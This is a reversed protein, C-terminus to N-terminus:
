ATAAHDNSYLKSSDFAQDLQMCAWVGTLMKRMVACLAQMKKKGRAVLADFFAKTHPDFRKASMAPMYLAARLYANGAKSLRGPKNISSGSQHLRVDLGAHRSVQSAKLHTPLVCLEALLSIASTTAIGKAATLHRMQRALTPAAQILEVAAATLKEIRRDLTRIGGQEDRILVKPTTRTSQLAHLRNRAQTRAATLRNIQRGLARLALREPAPPTWVAPRMCQAYEALLEADIRDTKSAKLKLAAFHHFSKPNIVAVRMGAQTLALALDLYYIGTAEMVVCEPALEGLKQILAAHGAATQEFSLVPGRSADSRSGVDVKAAGVDIGVFTAM